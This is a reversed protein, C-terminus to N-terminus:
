KKTKLFIREIGNKEFEDDWSERIDYFKQRDDENNRFDPYKWYKDFFDRHSLGEALEDFMNEIQYEDIYEHCLTDFDITWDLWNNEFDKVYKEMGNERAFSALYELLKNLEHDYDDDTHLKSANIVWDGIYTAIALKKFQEKSFFIKQGM